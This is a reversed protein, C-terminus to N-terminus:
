SDAWIVYLVREIIDLFANFVPSDSQLSDLSFPSPIMGPATPPQPDLQVEQLLNKKLVDVKSLDVAEFASQAPREQPSISMSIPLFLMPFYTELFVDIDSGLKM